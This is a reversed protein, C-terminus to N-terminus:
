GRVPCPAYGHPWRSTSIALVPCPFAPVGALGHAKPMLASQGATPATCGYAHHPRGAPYPKGKPHRRSAYTARLPLPIFVTPSAPQDHHQRQDTGSASATPQRFSYLGTRVGTQLRHHGAHRATAAPSPPYRRSCAPCLRPTIFIGFAHRTAPLREELRMKPSAATAGSSASGSIASTATPCPVPYPFPRVGQYAPANRKRGPSARASSTRANYPEPDAKSSAKPLLGPYPFSKVGPRLLRSERLLTYGLATWSWARAAKTCEARQFLSTRRPQQAQNEDTASAEIRRRPM